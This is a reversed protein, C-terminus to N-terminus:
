DEGSGGKKMECSSVVPFLQRFVGPPMPRPHRTGWPNHLLVGGDADTGRVAYAHHGETVVEYDDALPALADDDGREPAHAVTACEPGLVRRLRDESMTATSEQVAPNGSLYRLADKPWIGEGLKDYGGIDRAYAKELFPGLTSGDKSHAFHDGAENQWREAPNEVHPLRASMAEGSGASVVVDGNKQVKVLDAIRAPDRHAVADISAILSCDGLQGQRVTSIDLHEPHVPRDSADRYPPTGEPLPPEQELPKETPVSEPAKEPSDGADSRIERRRALFRDLGASPRDGDESRKSEGVSERSNTERM